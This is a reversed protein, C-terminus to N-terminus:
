QERNCLVDPSSAAHMPRIHNAQGQHYASLNDCHPEIECSWSPPDLKSLVQKSRPRTLITLQTKVTQRLEPPLRMRFDDRSTWRSQVIPTKVYPRNDASCPPRTFARNAPRETLVSPFFEPLTDPNPVIM